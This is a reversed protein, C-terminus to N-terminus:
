WSSSAGHGRSKGGGFGVFGAKAGHTIEVGLVIGLILGAIFIAATKMM